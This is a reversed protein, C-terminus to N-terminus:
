SHNLDLTYQIRQKSAPLMSSDKFSSISTEFTLLLSFADRILTILSNDFIESPFWLCGLCVQTHTYVLMFLILCLREIPRGAQM